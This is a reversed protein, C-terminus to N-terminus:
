SVVRELEYWRLIAELVHMGYVHNGHTPDQPWAAQVLMGDEDCMAAPVPLFGIGLQACMSRYLGAQARWMKYRFPAPSVGCQQILDTFYGPYTEIHAASPIPPPSEIHLLPGPAAQRYLALLEFHPIIRNQLAELVLRAPVIEAGPTLSLSPAEPLVFDFVRPHNLMSLVAHDNGGLLSVYLDYPQKKMEALIAPQLAGDVVAPQYTKENLLVFEAHLPMRDQPWQQFAAALAALHSHGMVFIRQM